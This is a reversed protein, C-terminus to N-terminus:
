KESVTVFDPHSSQEYYLIYVGTQLCFNIGPSNRALSGFLGHSHIGYIIVAPFVKAVNLATDVFGDICPIVQCHIIWTIFVSDLLAALELM